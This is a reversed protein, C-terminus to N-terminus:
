AKGGELQPLDSWLAVLTRRTRRIQRLGPGTVQFYRKARGGREPTPEGVTSSVLAKRELRELAAYVSGLGVERGTSAEIERAIPVGYANEGVRLLALIVMLEFEGLSARTRMHEIITFFHVLQLSFNPTSTRAIV